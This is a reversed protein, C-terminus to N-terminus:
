PPRAHRASRGPAAAGAARASRGRGPCTWRGAARGSAAPSCRGRGGPSEARSRPRSGCRRPPGAAARHRRAARCWAPRSGPNRRASGTPLLDLQPRLDGAVVGAAQDLLVGIELARAALRQARQEVEEAAVLCDAVQARARATVPRAAPPPPPPARGGLSGRARPPPPPAPAGIFEPKDFAVFRDLGSMGPTYSWRYEASWVGFSKELRLANMSAFGFLRAGFQAGAALLRQGLPRHEACPVNIEYGLEGTVSLRAVLARHLGIDMAGAEMFGLGASGEAALAALLESSRPGALAFGTMADSLDRVAVRGVLQSDFWRRHWARLYYSGMLWWVGEGWNIVTLDGLLRGTPSLMPALRVRGPKPLRCALLRDLWAEADAGRVEFRSFGSTDVIGVGERVAKVEEAVLPFANSRQLTPTEEFGPEAFYVPIELGWMATWEAGAATMADYCAPRRLPRGAPLRENPYTMVFRRAYFQATTQRLYERNAAFDGYRAVDMGYVDQEPEGHIMWEALAKGVGGGQSFGAMVGCATWYGRKGPVPGVLPNGDPTFTFAGNVWRKIGANALCPYRDFGRGLEMSIRDIDEPILEMGYDWPAGEVNWHKPTLEYVGLLM